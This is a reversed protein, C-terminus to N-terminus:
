DSIEISSPILRVISHYLFSFHNHPIRKKSYLLHSKCQKSDSNGFNDIAYDMDTRKVLDKVLECEFNKGQDMFLYVNKVDTINLTTIQDIHWHVKKKKKIHRSVRSYLNKQASGVYYYYGSPMERNKFIKSSLYFPHNAKIELIYIGKDSNTIKRM